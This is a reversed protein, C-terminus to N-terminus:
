DTLKNELAALRNTLDACEQRDQHSLRMELLIEQLQDQMQQMRLDSYDNKDYTAKDVSSNSCLVDAM